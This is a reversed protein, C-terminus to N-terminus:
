AAAPQTGWFRTFLLRVLTVPATRARWRRYYSTNSEIERRAVEEMKLRTSRARKVLDSYARSVSDIHHRKSRLKGDEFACRAVGVGFAYGAAAFGLLTWASRDSAWLAFCLSLFAFLCATFVSSRAYEKLEESDVWDLVYPPYVSGKARKM